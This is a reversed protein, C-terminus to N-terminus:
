SQQMPYTSGSDLTLTKGVVHEAKSYWTCKNCFDHTVRTASSGEAKYIAVKQMGGDPTKQSDAPEVKMADGAMWNWGELADVFEVSGDGVVLSGSAVSSFVDLSSKWSNLRQEPIQFLEQDALIKGVWSAEAGSNNKVTVIRAM